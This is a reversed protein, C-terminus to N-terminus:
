AVKRSPYNRRITRKLRLRTEARSVTASAFKGQPARSKLCNGWGRYLYGLSALDLVLRIVPRSQFDSAHRRDDGRTFPSHSSRRISMLPAVIRYAALQKEFPASRKKEPDPLSLRPSM